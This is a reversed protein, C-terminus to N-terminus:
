KKSGKTKDSVDQVYAIVDFGTAYEIDKKSQVTDDLRSVIFFALYSLVLAVLAAILTYMKWQNTTVVRNTTAYEVVFITGAFPYVDNGGTGKECSVDEIADAIANVTASAAEKSTTTTYSVTVLLNEEKYSVSISSKTVKEIKKDSSTKENVKDRVVNTDTIVTSLVPMVNKGFSIAANDYSVNVGSPEEYLYKANIILTASAKYKNKILLKTAVGTCLGVALTICIIAIINKVFINWLEGISIGDEVYETKQKEEM